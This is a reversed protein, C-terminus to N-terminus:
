KLITFYQALMDPMLRVIRWAAPRMFPRYGGKYFVPSDEDGVDPIGRWGYENYVGYHVTFSLEYSMEGMKRIYISDRLHGTDVPCLHKAYRRAEIAADHFLKNWVKQDRLNKFDKIVSDLGDIRIRYM